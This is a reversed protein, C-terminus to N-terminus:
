IITNEQVADLELLRFAALDRQQLLQSVSLNLKVAVDGFVWQKQTDHNHKRRVAPWYCLVERERPTLMKLLKRAKREDDTIRCSKLRDAKGSIADPKIQSSQPMEGRFTRLKDLMSPGGNIIRDMEETKAEYTLGQEILVGVRENQARTLM